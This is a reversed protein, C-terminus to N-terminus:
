VEKAALWQRAAEAWREPVAALVYLERDGDVYLPPFLEPAPAPVPFATDAATRVWATARLLAAAQRDVTAAPAYFGAGRLAAELLRETVVSGRSAGFGVLQVAPEVSRQVAPRVVGNGLLRALVAREATGLGRMWGRGVLRVAVLVEGTTLAAVRVIGSAVLRAVADREVSTVDRVIGSGALRAVVDREVGTAIRQTGGGVLRVAPFRDATPLVRSWGGGVLTIAVLVEEVTLPQATRMVGLAVLRALVEREVTGTPRFIGAGVLRSTVDREVAVAGLLTGAAAGRTGASREVAASGRATGNGAYRGAALRSAEATARLTGGGAQRSSGLRSVEGLARQAGMAALRATAVRDVTAAGREAGVAVLRAVALRDALAQTRAWGGGVLRAVIQVAAGAPPDADGIWNNSAIGLRDLYFTQATGTAAAGIRIVDISSAASTGSLSGNGFSTGNLRVEYVDNVTDWLVELRNNTDDSLAGTTHVAPFTGPTSTAVEARIGYGSALGRWRLRLVATGGSRLAFFISDDTNVPISQTDMVIENRWYVVPQSAALTHDSNVATGADPRNVKGCHTGWKPGAGTVGSVLQDPDLNADGSWVNEYGSGEFDESFIWDLVFTPVWPAARHVAVPATPRYVM